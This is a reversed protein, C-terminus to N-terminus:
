FPIKGNLCEADRGRLVGGGGGELGRFVGDDEGHEVAVGAELCLASSGKEGICIPRAIARAVRASFGVAVDTLAGQAPASAVDANHRWNQRHQGRAVPEVRRVHLRDTSNFHMQRRDDDV